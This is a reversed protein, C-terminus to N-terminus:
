KRIIVNRITTSEFLLIRLLGERICGNITPYYVDTKKSIDIDNDVVFISIKDKINDKDIAITGKM